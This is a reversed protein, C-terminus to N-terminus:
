TYQTASPCRRQKWERGITFLTAIFMSSWTDGYGSISEKPYIGLLPIAPNFALKLKLKGAVISIAQDKFSEM